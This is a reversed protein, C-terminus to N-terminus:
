GQSLGLSSIKSPYPPCTRMNKTSITTASGAFASKRTNGYGTIVVDKIVQEEAQLTIKM